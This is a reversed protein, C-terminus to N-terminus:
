AGDASLNTHLNPMLKVSDRTGVQDSYEHDALFTLTSGFIDSADDYM